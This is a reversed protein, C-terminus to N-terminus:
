RACNANNITEQFEKASEYELALIVGLPEKVCADRRTQIEPWLERARRLDADSVGAALIPGSYYNFCVALVAASMIIAPPWLSMLRKLFDALLFILPLCAFLLLRRSVSHEGYLLSWSLFYAGFMALFWLGAARLYQNWKDFAVFYAIVIVLICIILALLINLAPYDTNAGFFYLLNSGALADYFRHPDFAFRPSSLFDLSILVSMAAFAAAYSYRRESKAAMILAFFAAACIFSLSYSFYMLILLGASLYLLRKDGTRLYLLPWLCYFALFLFGYSAPLGQAGYYQLLYLGSSLFASLLAFRADPKMLWAAAFIILPLFLSWVLPLLFRNVQFVPWGSLKSVSAEISWQAGYSLKASDILARPIAIPGLQSLWLEKALLSPQYEKGELLRQESALHRFRDAGFGNNYSLLYSHIILSSLIILILAQVIKKNSLVAYGAAAILLAAFALYAIPLVQWPSSIAAGTASVKILYWGSILSLYAILWLWPPVSARSDELCALAPQRRYQWWIAAILALSLGASIIMSLESFAFWATFINAILGFLFIPLFAALAFNLRGLPLLRDVAQKALYCSFGLWIIFSLTLM